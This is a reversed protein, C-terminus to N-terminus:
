ARPLTTSRHAYTPKCRTPQVVVPSRPQYAWWRLDAAIGALIIHRGFSRGGTIRAYM